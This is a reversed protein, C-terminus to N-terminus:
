HHFSQYGCFEIIKILCTQRDHWAGEVFLFLDQLSNKYRAIYPGTTINRNNNSITVDSNQDTKKPFHLEGM